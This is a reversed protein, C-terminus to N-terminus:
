HAALWNLGEGVDVVLPVKTDIVNEMEYKVIEKLEERETNHTDFVLEDHVQLIM